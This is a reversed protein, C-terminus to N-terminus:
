RVKSGYEGRGQQGCAGFGPGLLRGPGSRLGADYLVRVIPARIDADAAHGDTIKNRRVNETAPAWHWKWPPLGIDVVFATRNPITAENTAAATNM